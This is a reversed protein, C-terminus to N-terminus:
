AVPAEIVECLLNDFDKTTNSKFEFKIVKILNDSGFSFKKRGVRNVVKIVEPIYLVM